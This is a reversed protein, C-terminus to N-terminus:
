EKKVAVYFVSGLFKSAPKHMIVVDKGIRALKNAHRIAYSKSVGAHVIDRDILQLSNIMQM